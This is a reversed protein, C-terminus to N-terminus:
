DNGGNNQNRDSNQNCGDGQNRDSNQNCGNRGTSPHLPQAKPAGTATTGEHQPTM